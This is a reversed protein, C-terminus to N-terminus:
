QNDSPPHFLLPCLVEKGNNPIMTHVFIIKGSILNAYNSVAENPTLGEGYEVAAGYEDKIDVDVPGVDSIFRARIANSSVRNMGIRLGHQAAFDQISVRVGSSFDEDKDQGSIPLIGDNGVTLFLFNGNDSLRELRVTYHVNFSKGDRSMKADAHIVEGPEFSRHKTRYNKAM